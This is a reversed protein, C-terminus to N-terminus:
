KVEKDNLLFSFMMFSLAGVFFKQHIETIRAIMPTTPCNTTIGKTVAYENQITVTPKIRKASLVTKFPM